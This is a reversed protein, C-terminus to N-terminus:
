IEPKDRLWRQVWRFFCLYHSYRTAFIKVAPIVSTKFPLNSPSSACEDQNNCWGLLFLNLGSSILKCQYHPVRIPSHNIVSLTATSVIRRQQLSKKLRSKSRLTGFSWSVEILISQKAAGRITRWMGKLVSCKNVNFWAQILTKQCHWSSALSGIFSQVHSLFDIWSPCAASTGENPQGFLAM